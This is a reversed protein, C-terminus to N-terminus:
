GEVPEPPTSLAIIENYTQWMSDFTYIRDTMDEDFEPPLNVEEEPLEPIEFLLEEKVPEFYQVDFKRSSNLGARTLGFLYFTYNGTAKLPTLTM